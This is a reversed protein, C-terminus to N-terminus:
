EPMYYIVLQKELYDGNGGIPYYTVNIVNEGLALPMEFEFEDKELKIIKNSNSSQSVIMSDKLGKGKIKVTNSNVVSDTKPETLEFSVAKAQNRNSKVNQKLDSTTTEITKSSGQTTRSLITYGVGIGLTIGLVIAIISERKM